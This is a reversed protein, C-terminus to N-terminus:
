FEESVNELVDHMIASVDDVHEEDNGQKPKNNSTEQFEILNVESSSTQGLNQTQNHRTCEKEGEAILQGGLGVAREVRECLKNESNLKERRNKTKVDKSREENRQYVSM